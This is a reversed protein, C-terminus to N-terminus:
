KGRAKEVDVVVLQNDFMSFSLEIAKLKPSRDNRCIFKLKTDPQTVASTVTGSKLVCEGMQFHSFSVPGIQMQSSRCANPSYVDAGGISDSYCWVGQFTTPVETIKAEYAKAPTGFGVMGIAFAVLIEIFINAM